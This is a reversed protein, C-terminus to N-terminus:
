GGNQLVIRQGQSIATAWQTLHPEPIPNGGDATWHRTLLPRVEDVPRGSCEEFVKDMVPQMRTNFRDM